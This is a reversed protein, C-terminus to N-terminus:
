DSTNEPGNQILLIRPHLGAKFPIMTMTGTYAVCDRIFNHPQYGNGNTDRSDFGLEFVKMGPFGSDALLKKVSDTLFGLDEAIIPQKGIKAEM